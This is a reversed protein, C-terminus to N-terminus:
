PTTTTTVISAKRFKCSTASGINFYLVSDSDGDTHMFQCGAVYGATADTPVTLGYANGIYDGARGTVTVDASSDPYDGEDLVRQINRRNSM